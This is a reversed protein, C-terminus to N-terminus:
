IPSMQAMDKITEGALQLSMELDQKQNRHIIQILICLNLDEKVEGAYVEPYKSVLKAGALRKIAAKESVEVSTIKM